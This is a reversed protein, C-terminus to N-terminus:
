SLAAPDLMDMQLQGLDVGQMSPMDAVLGELWSLEESGSTFQQYGNTAPENLLTTFMFEDGRRKQFLFVLLRATSHAERMVSTDYTSAVLALTQMAESLLQLSEATELDLLICIIHFPVNAIHHWPCCAAVMSSAAHLGKKLLALVSDRANAPIRFDLARLRRILCLVLNCQALVSPPQTHTRRLTQLLLAELDKDTPSQEPDLSASAPILSFLENTYNEPRPSPLSPLGGQFSVRSVGLDYSIWMNLHQAVGVLRRQIDIDCPAGRFLVTEYPSDLHLGSAEILHMLTSSAIWSVHPSATMRLYVVRLMWGTVSDLTPPEAMETDLISRASEVLHVEAITASRESFLCGLAAVGSLVSDYANSTMPSQWRADLRQFFIRSDIFGYCPDVKNFYTNALAEMDTRSLIDVTPLTCVSRGSPLKRAGINWGFVNLEPANAPDVKLGMRRVFAAGSNAEICHLVSQFETTKQSKTASPSSKKGESGPKADYHCSYGWNSCTICPNEGNCKRKRERCPECAVRSRKRQGPLSNM